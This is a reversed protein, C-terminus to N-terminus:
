IHAILFILKLVSKGGAIIMVILMSSFINDFSITGGFPNETEECVLGQECIFGKYWLANEGNKLKYPVTHGTENVYGGCYQQLEETNSSNNPDLHVHKATFFDHNKLKKKGHWVCHRQFSGSFSQVGIISYICNKTNSLKM